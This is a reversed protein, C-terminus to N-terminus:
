ELDDLTVGEPAVAAPVDVTQSTPKGAPAVEFGDLDRVPPWVEPNLERRARRLALDDAIEAEILEHPKCCWRHAEADTAYSSPDCTAKPAAQDDQRPRAVNFEAKRMLAKFWDLRALVLRDGVAVPPVIHPAWRFRGRVAVGAPDAPAQLPGLCYGQLKIAGGMPRVMVGDTELWSAGQHALLVVRDGPGVRRSAIDLTLPATAVVTAWFLDRDGADTAKEAAREPNALVALQTACLDDSQIVDVLLNRWYPYTRGFRVLDSARLRLRRRWVVQADGELSRYAPQLKSDPLADLADVAADLTAAKFALEDRVLPEYVAVDGTRRLARLAETIANSTQNALRAGPTHASAEVEESVVRHDVPDTTTAWTVMYDLRSADFAPGGPVFYRAMVATLDIVPQRVSLMRARDHELLFSVATRRAGELAAPMTAPEGNYTLLPRGMELDRKWRLRSLEVGALHDATSALLDATAGDPVVLHVPDPCDPNEQGNQRMALELEKGIIAMVRRRTSDAQPDEFVQFKWATPGDLTERSVGVGHFGLAAADSKAVVVNVVGPRGVSDVRLQGTTGVEGSLTARLRSATSPRAAPLPAGGALMPLVSLHENEPVGIEVLLADRASACRLEHRCHSFLSCSRCGGPDFAARLQAVYADLSGVPGGASVAGLRAAWQSEVEALHDHLDEVEVTPQLFASRPVALFGHRSVALGSPLGDWRQLAFAGMAVQLFGKLLRGDDIRSRVREYDKVDGMVLTPGQPGRAVVALDPLVNTAAGDEFGPYPVALKYLLTATGDQARDAAAALQTATVSASVGCDVRVVATPRAFGTWGTARTAVEGAFAPDHCLREFVMARMWRADPIGASTDPHHLEAALARRSRGTVMPDTGRFRDCPAHVAWTAASSAGGASITAVM